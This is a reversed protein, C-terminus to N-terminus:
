FINCGGEDKKNKTDQNKLTPQILGAKELTSIRQVIQGIFSAIVSKGEQGNKASTEISQIQQSEAFVKTEDYNTQRSEELDKKNGVLVRPIDRPVYKLSEDLYRQAELCSDKNTIDYVLVIGHAGEFYSKFSGQSEGPIDWIEVKYVKNEIKYSRKTIKVQSSPSSTESFPKQSFQDILSSKGVSKAGLIVVKLNYDYSKESPSSDQNKQPVEPSKVVPNKAVPKKPAPGKGNRYNEEQRAFEEEEEKQRIEAQVIAAMDKTMKKLLDGVNSLQKSSAEYFPIGLTEAYKKGEEYPVEIEEKLDTTHGILAMQVDQRAHQKVENLWTAISTLTKRNNTSYVLIVGRTNKFQPILLSRFRSDGATDWIQLKFGKGDVDVTCTAFDKSVNSESKLYRTIVDFKQTGSDGLVLVKFASDEERRAGSLM